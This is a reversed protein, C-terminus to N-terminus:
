LIHMISYDQVYLDTSNHIGAQPTSFNFQVSYGGRGVTNEAAVVVTYNNFEELSTFTYSQATTNAVFNALGFAYETLIIEYNIVIGWPTMRNPPPTQWIITATTPLVNSAQLDTPPRPEIFLLIFISIMAPPQIFLKGVTLYDGSSSNVLYVNSASIGQFSVYLFSGLPRSITTPDLFVEWYDRIAVFWDYEYENPNRYRDSAYCNVYGSTVTLSLTIGSAPFPLSYFKIVRNLITDGIVAGIGFDAAICVLM